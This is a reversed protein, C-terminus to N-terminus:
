AAILLFRMRILRIKVQEEREREIERKEGPKIETRAAESWETIPCSITDRAFVRGVRRRFQILQSIGIIRQPIKHVSDVASLLSKSLIHIVVIIDVIM